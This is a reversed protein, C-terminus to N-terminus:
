HCCPLTRLGVQAKKCGIRLCLELGPGRTVAIADVHRMLEMPDALDPGTVRGDAKLHSQMQALATSIASDLASKHGEMALVPVIGGYQAHIHTQPVVVNALIRGSSDVIGVGTDDCSSEIGMVIFPEISRPDADPGATVLQPPLGSLALGHHVQYYQSGDSSHDQGKAVGVVIRPATQTFCLLRRHGGAAVLRSPLSFRLASKM